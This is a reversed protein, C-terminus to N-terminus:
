ADPGHATLGREMTSDIPLTIVILKAITYLAVCTVM